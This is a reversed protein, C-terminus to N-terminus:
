EFSTFLLHPKKGPTLAAHFMWLSFNMSPVCPQSDLRFIRAPYPWFPFTFM